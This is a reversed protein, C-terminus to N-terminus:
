EKDENGSLSIIGDIAQKLNEKEYMDYADNFGQEWGAEYGILYSMGLSMGFLVVFSVVSLVIMRCRRENHDATRREGCKGRQDAYSESM